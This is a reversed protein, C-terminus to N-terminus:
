KAGVISEIYSTTGMSRFQNLSSAPVYARKVKKPYEVIQGMKEPCEKFIVEEVEKFCSKGLYEVEKNFILEKVDSNFAYDSIYVPRNFEFKSCKGNTHIGAGNIFLPTESEEVVINICEKVSGNLKGGYFNFASRDIFLLQKPIVFESIDCSGLNVGANGGIYITNKMEMFEKDSIVGCGYVIHYNGPFLDADSQIKEFTISGEELNVSMKYGGNMKNGEWVYLEQPVDISLKQPSLAKTITGKMMDPMIELLGKVRNYHSYEVINHLVSIDHKYAEAIDKYEGNVYGIDVTNDTSVILTKDDKSKKIVKFKDVYGFSSSCYLAALVILVFLKKM